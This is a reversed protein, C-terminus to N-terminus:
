TAYVLRGTFQTEKLPTLDIVVQDLIYLTDEPIGAIVRQITVVDDIDHAPQDRITFTSKELSGISTLGIALAIAQAQDAQFTPGILTSDFQQVCPPYHATSDVLPLVYQPTTFGGSPTDAYFTPSSPNDDWWYVAIPAAVSSGESVVCVINPVSENNLARSITTPATTTGEAYTVCSDVSNPDPTNALTLVGDYDFYLELGANAAMDQAAQWPDDGIKFTAVAPVYTSFTEFGAMAPFPVYNHPCANALIDIIAAGVEDTGDTVFPTTFLNRALWQGRDKLTGVLTVGNTDNVVDVEEIFFVGLAAVESGSDPDVGDELEGSAGVGIDSLFPSMGSGVVIAVTIAIWPNAGYTIWTGTFSPVSTTANVEDYVFLSQDELEADSIRETLGAPTTLSDGLYNGAGVVVKEGAAAATFASTLVDATNDFNTVDTDITGPGYDLIGVVSFEQDFSWTYTSPESSAVKTYLWMIDDDAPSDNTTDVLTWGSPPTVVTNSAGSNYVFALLLDGDVIGAPATVVVPDGTGGDNASSTFPYGADPQTLTDGNHTTGTTTSTFVLNTGNDSVTVYTSFAVSSGDLADNIATALAALTSYTGAAVTFTDPIGTTIPTYIFTDNMGTTVTYPLTPASPAILYPARGPVDSEVIGKFLKLEHGEPSFLGTSDTAADGAIPLLEGAADLLMTVNSATRRIVNSRDITVSGQTVEINGLLLVNDAPFASTVGSWIEAYTVPEIVVAEYATLYDSSFAGYPLPYLQGAM